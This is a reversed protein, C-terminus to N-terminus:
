GFIESGPKMMKSLTPINQSQLKQDLNDQDICYTGYIDRVVWLNGDTYVKVHNTTINKQPIQFYGNAYIPNALLVLVACIYNKITM